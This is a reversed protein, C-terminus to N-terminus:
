VRNISIFFKKLEKIDKELKKMHKHREFLFELIDHLLDDNIKNKSDNVKYIYSEIKEKVNKNEKIQQLIQKINLPKMAKIKEESQNKYFDKSSYIAYPENEMKGSIVTKFGYKNLQRKLTNVKKLKGKTETVEKPESESEFKLEKDSKSEPMLEKDSKSETKSEFDSDSDNESDDNHLLKVLEEKNKILIQTGNEHWSIISSNNKNNIAEFLKVPFRKKGM